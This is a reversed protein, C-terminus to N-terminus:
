MYCLTTNHWWLWRSPRMLFNHWKIKPVLISARNSFVIAFWRQSDSGSVLTALVIKAAEAILPFCAAKEKWWALEDCHIGETIHPHYNREDMCVKSWWRYWHIMILSQKLMQILTDNDGENPAHLRLVLGSSAQACQPPGIAAASHVGSGLSQFAWRWFSM